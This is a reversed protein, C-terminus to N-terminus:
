RKLSARRYISRLEDVGLPALIVAEAAAMAQSLSEATGGVPPGLEDRFSVFWEWGDRQFVFGGRAPAERPDRIYAKAESSTSRWM